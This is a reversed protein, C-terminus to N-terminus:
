SEALTAGIRALAAAVDSGLAIAGAAQIADANRVSVDGGLFVPVPVARCLQPLSDDLMRRQPRTSASLVLAACRRISIVEALPELPMNAGLSLVRYGHSVAALGFQLLGLEHHEGPICALLLRPGSAGQGLHHIRAGLKNRLYASFFHEEAVALTRERWTAGFHDLLPAILRANVMVVPYLSLADNYVADLAPEDFASVAALMRDQYQQWVDTNPERESATPEERQVLGAAKGISIGEELLALVRKIREVDAQSYLRHGSDTRQPRILGYRREWARLTVPNVGTLNAVTRIPFRSDDPADAVAAQTRNESM